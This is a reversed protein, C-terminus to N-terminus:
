GVCAALLQTSNKIFNPFFRGSETLTKEMKQHFQVVMGHQADHGFRIFFHRGNYVFGVVVFEAFVVLQEVDDVVLAVDALFSVFRNLYKVVFVFPHRGDILTNPLGNKLVEITKDAIQFLAMIWLQEIDRFLEGNIHANKHVLM